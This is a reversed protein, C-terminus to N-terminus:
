ACPEQDSEGCVPFDAFVSSAQRRPPQRSFRRQVGPSRRECTDVNQNDVVFVVRQRQESFRELDGTRGNSGHPRSIIRYTFVTIMGGVQQHGIQTKCSHVAEFQQFDYPPRMRIDGCDRDRRESTQVFGITGCTDTRVSALASAVDFRGRDYCDVTLIVETESKTPPRSGSAGGSRRHSGPGQTSAPLEHERM